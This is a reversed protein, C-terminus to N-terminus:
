RPNRGLRPKWALWTKWIQRGKKREPLEGMEKQVWLTIRWVLFPPLAICALATAGFIAAYVNANGLFAVLAALVFLTGLALAGVGTAIVPLWFGLSEMWSRNNARGDSQPEREGASPVDEDNANM